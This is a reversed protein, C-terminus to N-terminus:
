QGDQNWVAMCKDGVKWSLKPPATVSGNTSSAGDSPQSALLDKTLDIVEQLPFLIFLSNM